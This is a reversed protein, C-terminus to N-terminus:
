PVLRSLLAHLQQAESEELRFEARAVELAERPTTVEPLAGRLQMNGTKRIYRSITENEALLPAMTQYALIVKPPHGAKELAKAQEELSATLQEQDMAFQRKAWPTAPPCKDAIQNWVTAAVQYM